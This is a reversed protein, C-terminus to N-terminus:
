FLGASVDEPLNSLSQLQHVLIAEKLSIDLAFINQDVSVTLDFDSVEAECLTVILAAISNRCTYACWM